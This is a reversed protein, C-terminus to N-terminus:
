LYPQQRRDRSLDESSIQCLMNFRRTRTNSELRLLPTILFFETTCSHQVFERGGTERRGSRPRAIILIFVAAHFMAHSQTKGERRVSLDPTLPDVIDGLKYDVAYEVAARILRVPRLRVDAHMAHLITSEIIPPRNTPIPGDGGEDATKPDPGAGELLILLFCSLHFEFFRRFLTKHLSCPLVTCFTKGGSM